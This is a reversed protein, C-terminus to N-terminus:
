PASHGALHRSLSRHLTAWFIPRIRPSFDPWTRARRSGHLWYPFDGLFDFEDYSTAEWNRSSQSWRLLPQGTPAQNTTSLRIPSNRAQFCVVTLPSRGYRATGTTVQPSASPDISSDVEAFGVLVYTNNAKAYTRANDLLAKSEQVSREHLRKRRQHVHLAPAILVM